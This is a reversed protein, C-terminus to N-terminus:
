DEDEPDKYRLGTWTTIEEISDPPLEARVAERAALFVAAGWASGVGHAKENVEIEMKFTLIRKEDM